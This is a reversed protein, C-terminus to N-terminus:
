CKGLSSTGIRGRDVGHRRCVGGIALLLEIRELLQVTQRAPWGSTISARVSFPNIVPRVNIACFNDPGAFNGAYIQLRQEIVEPSTLDPEELCIRVRRSEGSIAGNRFWLLM